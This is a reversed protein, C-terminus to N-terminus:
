KLYFLQLYFINWKVKLREKRGETMRCETMRSRRKTKRSETMRRETLRGETLRGETVTEFYKLGTVSGEKDSAM